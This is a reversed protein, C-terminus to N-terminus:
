SIAVTEGTELDDAAMVDAMGGTGLLHRLRYRAAIVTGVASDAM